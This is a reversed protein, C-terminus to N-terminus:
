KKLGGKLNKFYNDDIKYIEERLIDEYNYLKDIYYNGYNGGKLLESFKNLQKQGVNEFIGNRRILEKNIEKILKEKLRNIKIKNSTEM